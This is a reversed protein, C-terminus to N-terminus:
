RPCEGTGVPAGLPESLLPGLASADLAYAVAARDPAVAVAVGIVRGDGRLVASGSDGPDLDSALALLQREVLARDYIDYGTASFADGVEFSSPDFPGGGPFGLVLGRDGVSPAGLEIPPRDLQTAVIALDTSPDFAVVEGGAAQGDASTLSLGDTGAVVHANTAVLGPAVVFGSGSQRRGCADGQIRVSSSAAVELLEPSVTSDAPPAPIDPARRLESFMRPYGGQTLQRELERIQAPPDPLWEDIAAAILSGRASASPWGQTDAMVPVVLWALVVVAVVGLAGGGLADLNRGHDSDVGRRLRSGILAGVAQGISALLVLLATGVFLVGLDSDLRFWGVVSPAMLIAIGLGVAIGVWGSLRRLFGLRWGGVAAVLALTLLILDLGNM